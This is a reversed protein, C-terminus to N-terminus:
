KVSKGKKAAKPVAAQAAVEPVPEDLVVPSPEIPPDQLVIPVPKPELEMAAIAVAIADIELSIATKAEFRSTATTFPSALHDLIDLIKELQRELM